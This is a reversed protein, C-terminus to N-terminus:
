KTLKNTAKKEHKENRIKYTEWKITISYNQKNM